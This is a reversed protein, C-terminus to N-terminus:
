SDRRGPREMDVISAHVQPACAGAPEVGPKPLASVIVHAIELLRMSM